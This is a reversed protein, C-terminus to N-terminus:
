ELIYWYKTRFWTSQFSCHPNLLLNDM